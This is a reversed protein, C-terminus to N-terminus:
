PQLVIEVDYFSWSSESRIESPFRRPSAAHLARRDLNFPSYLGM